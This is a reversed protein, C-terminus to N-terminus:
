KTVFLSSNSRARFFSSLIQIIFYTLHYDLLLLLSDVGGELFERERGQHVFGFM